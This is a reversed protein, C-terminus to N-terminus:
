NGRKQATAKKSLDPGACSQIRSQTASLDTLHFTIEKEYGAFAHVQFLSALYDRAQLGTEFAM